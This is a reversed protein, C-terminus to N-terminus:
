QFLFMPEELGGSGFATKNQKQKQKIREHDCLFFCESFKFFGREMSSTIIYNTISNQCEFYM